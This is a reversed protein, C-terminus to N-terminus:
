KLFVHYDQMQFYYVQSNNLTVVRSTNLITGNNNYINTETGIQKKQVNNLNDVCLYYNSSNQIAVPKKPLVPRPVSSNRFKSFLLTCITFEVNPM